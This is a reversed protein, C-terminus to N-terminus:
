DGTGPLGFKRGLPSALLNGIIILTFGAVFLIRYDFSVPSMSIQVSNVSETSLEIVFEYEGASPCKFLFAKGDGTKKTRRSHKGKIFRRCNFGGDRNWSTDQNCYVRYDFRCVGQPFKIYMYINYLGKDLQITDTIFYRGTEDSVAKEHNSYIFDGGIYILWGLVALIIGPVGLIWFWISKLNPSISLFNYNFRM